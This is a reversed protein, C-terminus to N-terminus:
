LCLAEPLKLGEYGCVINSYWRQRCFLTKVSKKVRRFTWWRCTCNRTEYGYMQKAGCHHRISPEVAVLSALCPFNILMRNNNRDEQRYHLGSVTSHDPLCYIPVLIRNAILKTDNWNRFQGNCSDSWFLWFLLALAFIPVTVHFTDWIM